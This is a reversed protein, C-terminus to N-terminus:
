QLDGGHQPIFALPLVMPHDVQDAQAIHLQLTEGSEKFAPRDFVVVGDAREGPGLRRTSMRYESIMVPQSKLARSERGSASGILEIQPPLLEIAALSHNLISFAVVTEDGRQRSDGVFGLLPGGNRNPFSVSRQRELVRGLLDAERGPAARAPPEAQSLPRTDAILLTQDDASVVLPDPSRRFDIFFDVEPDRGTRGVSVLNLNVAQGSKMTILANSRVAESAIPKFFVLRPETESHEARFRSPDGLVVSNVEDPLRVSTIYGPVLRVLTTVGPKLFVTSIRPTVHAGDTQASALPLPMLFLIICIKRM